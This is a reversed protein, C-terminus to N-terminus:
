YGQYAQLQTHYILPGHFTIAISLIVYGTCVCYHIIVRAINLYHYAISLTLIVNTTFHVLTIFLQETAVLYLRLTMYQTFLVSVHQAICSLKMYGNM